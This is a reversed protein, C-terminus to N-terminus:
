GGIQDKKSHRKVSSVKKAHASGTRKPEEWGYVLGPGYPYKEKDIAAESNLYDFYRQRLMLQLPIGSLLAAIGTLLSAPPHLKWVMLALILAGTVSSMVLQDSVFLICYVLASVLTIWLAQEAFFGGLQMCLAYFLFVAGAFVNLQYLGYFVAFGILAFIVGYLIHMSWYEPNARAGIYYGFLSMYGAGALGSVLKHLRFGYVCLLIAGATCLIILLVSSTLTYSIENLTLGSFVWDVANKINVLQEKIWDLAFIM